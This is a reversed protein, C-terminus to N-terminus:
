HVHESIEEWGPLEAIRIFNNDEARQLIFTKPGNTLLLLDAKVERNYIALQHLTNEDVPVNPAKCEVLMVESGNRDFVVLDYRKRMNNVLITKEVSMMPFPFGKEDHLFRILTQRVFEEPTFVMFRKRVQCWIEKNGDNERTQLEYIPLEM